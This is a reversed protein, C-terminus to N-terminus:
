SPFLLIPLSLASFYLYLFPFLPSLFCPLILISLEIILLYFCPLFSSPIHSFSPFPYPHFSPLSSSLNSPPPLALPALPLFLPSSLPSFSPLFSINPFPSATYPFPFVPLSSLFPLFSSPFCCYITLFFSPLFPSFHQQPLFFFPTPPRMECLTTKPRRPAQM